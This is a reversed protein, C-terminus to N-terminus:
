NKTVYPIRHKKTYTEDGPYSGIGDARRKAKEYATAIDHAQDYTMGKKMHNYEVLEHYLTYPIERPDQTIDIWIEGKPVYSYVLHHGGFSFEPDISLRVKTGDVSVINMGHKKEKKVVVSFTTSKEAVREKIRKRWEHYSRLSTKQWEAEYALFLRTEKKFQKDIWIENAPIYWKPSFESGSHAHCISFEPDLVSRIRFGDVYRIKM